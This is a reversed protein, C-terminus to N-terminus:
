LIWKQWFGSKLITALERIPLMEALCKWYGSAPLVFRLKYIAYYLRIVVNSLTSLQQSLAWVHIYMLNQHQCFQLLGEVFWSDRGWSWLSWLYLWPQCCSYVIVFICAEYKICLHLFLLRWKTDNVHHSRYLSTLRGLQMTLSSVSFLTKTKITDGYCPLSYYNICFLGRDWM